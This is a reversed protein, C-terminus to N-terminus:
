MKSARNLPHLKTGGLEVCIHIIGNYMYECMHISTISRIDHVNNDSVSGFDNVAIQRILGKSNEVLIM